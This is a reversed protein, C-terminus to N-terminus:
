QAGKGRRKNVTAAATLFLRSCLSIECAQPPGIRDGICNNPVELPTSGTVAM